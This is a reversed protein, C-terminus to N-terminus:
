PFQRNCMAVLSKLAPEQRKEAMESIIDIFRQTVKHAEEETGGVSTINAQGQTYSRNFREMYQKAGLQDGDDEYARVLMRFYAACVIPTDDYTSRSKLDQAMMPAACLTVAILNGIFKSFM